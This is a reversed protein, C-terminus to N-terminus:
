FIVLLDDKNIDKAKKVGNSTYILTNTTVELKGSDTNFVFIEQEGTNVIASINDKEIQFSEENVSFVNEGIKLDKITKEGKLTKITSEESFCDIVGAMVDIGNNFAMGSRPAIRGYWGKPISIKIGTPVLVREFPNVVVRETSYLDWGADGHHKQTPIVANPRCKSIGINIKEM